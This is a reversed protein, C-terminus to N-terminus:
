ACAAARFDDRLNVLPAPSTRPYHQASPRPAVVAADGSPRVLLTEVAVGGSSDEVAESRGGGREVTMQTAASARRRDLFPM